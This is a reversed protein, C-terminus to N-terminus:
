TASIGATVRLAPILGHRITPGLSVVREYKTCHLLFLASM